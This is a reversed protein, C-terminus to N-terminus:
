EVVHESMKAEVAVARVHVADVRRFQAGGAIDIGGIPLAVARKRYSVGPGQILVKRVIQSGDPLLQGENLCRLGVPHVTERLRIEILAARGGKVERRQAEHIAAAHGHRSPEGLVKRDTVLPEATKWARRM